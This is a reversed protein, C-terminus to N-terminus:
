ECIQSVLGGRGFKVKPKAVLKGRRGGLWSNESGGLQVLLIVLKGRVGM